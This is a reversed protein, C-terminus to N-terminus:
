GGLVESLEPSLAVAAAFVVVALVALVVAGARAEDSRGRLREIALTGLGGAVLGGLHGGISIGPISFTFVLNLVVILGIQSALEELGRQRAVLFASAMLGFIAGSAGVAIADAEIVTVGLSGGVLSLMYLAVFRPTGLAPELMNGLFYLAFMNLGLHLVGYHLFGSTVLRWLEGEAVLPPFLAGDNYVSGAGRFLTAGGALEAAFGLLNLAILVGTATSVGGAMGSPARHVKTKERACEPCRMGVPTSTM